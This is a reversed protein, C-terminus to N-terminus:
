CMDRLDACMEGKIFSCFLFSRSNGHAREIQDFIKNLENEQEKSLRKEAAASATSSTAQHPTHSKPAVPRLESRQDNLPPNATYARDIADSVAQLDLNRKEDLHTQTNTHSVSLDPQQRTDGQGKDQGGHQNSSTDHGFSATEQYSPLDVSPRTQQTHDDYRPPLSDALHAQEDCHWNFESSENLPTTFAVYRTM